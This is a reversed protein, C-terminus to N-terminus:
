PEPPFELWPRLLIEHEQFAIEVAGTKKLPWVKCAPPITTADTSNALLNRPPLQLWNRVQLSDLWAPDPSPENAMVLIDARLNPQSALLQRQTVPSIRGAWLLSQNGARFLLVLSRDDARTTNDTSSPSLVGLSLEPSLQVSQGQQWPETKGGTRTLIEPLSKELPSQTHLVPVALTRPRFDRIITEVGGNDPASIQALVVGDLRNIGYFQLLHWVASPTASERGTNVLWTQQATRVLLCASDQLPAVVFSPEPSHLTRLDAVNISAGPEHALWGVFFILIKGLLWNTNNLLGALFSSVLSVTVSLTGVITIIGAVPVVVLNAFVSVPTIQHFTIATIPESILVAAIGTGILGLLFWWTNKEYRQPTTLLAPPLFPDPQFPTMLFRTIPPALLILGLVIGFSLQAGPDILIAPNWVLMVMLALSWCGLANLPRGLRWAALVTIAMFTARVASAPSGTLLCYLLVLPAILFAWRWRVFGCLQLLVVAVLVMEAINQGSVAFVHITGTRRFDQEIDTPIEQRYGILMGALFDAMRPDDELGIQLRAYAWDRARFSLKQWWNGAGTTVTRWNLPTLTAEYYIDQRALFDRANFSGPVLPEPPPTLASAFEVLDGCRIDKAPGFVTCRISGTASQWPADNDADFLRGGTPRWAEVQLTFNTRDLTRRTIKTNAQATPEDIVVGRWQTTAYSKEDPLRRLDDPAITGTILLTHVLGISTALLYFALLSTTEKQRLLLWALAILVTAILAASLCIWNDLGLVCGTAFALSVSFLPARPSLM